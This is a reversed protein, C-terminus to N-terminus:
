FRSHRALEHALREDTEGGQIRAYLSIAAFGLMANMLLLHLPFVLMLLGQLWSWAVPLTDPSPILGNMEFRGAVNRGPFGALPEKDAPPAKLPPMVGGKLKDLMDLAHRIRSYSTLTAARSRLTPCNVM